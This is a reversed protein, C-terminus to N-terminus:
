MPAFKRPANKKEMSQKLIGKTEIESIFKSKKMWSLVEFILEGLIAYYASITHVAVSYKEYHEYVM